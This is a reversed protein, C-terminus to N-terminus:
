PDPDLDPVGVELGEARMLVVFAGGQPSEARERLIDLAIAFQRGDARAFTSWGDWLVLTGHESRVDGLSDALADWNRGFWGPFGFAAAARDLFGAKDEVGSTDLHVFRWGADEVERRVEYAEVGSSWSYVGPLTRGDLIPALGTV